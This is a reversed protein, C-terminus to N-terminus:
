LGLVSCELLISGEPNVMRPKTQEEVHQAGSLQTSHRHRHKTPDLIPGSLTSLARLNTPHPKRVLHGWISRQKKASRKGGM